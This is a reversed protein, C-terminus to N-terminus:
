EPQSFDLARRITNIMQKLQKPNDETEKKRKGLDSLKGDLYELVTEFEEKHTIENKVGKLETCGNNNEIGKLTKPRCLMTKFDSDRESYVKYSLENTLQNKELENVDIWGDFDYQSVLLTIGLDSWKNHMIQQKEMKNLKFM